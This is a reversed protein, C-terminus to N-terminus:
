PQGGTARIMASYVTTEIQAAAKAASGDAAKGAAAVANAYGTRVAAEDIESIPVCETVSVDTVNNAHTLAFGGPVFFKETEGSTHIVTVVGAKLQSIVPSHGLTVGYEGAEGPLLVKDVVKKAYIPQHPTVLNLTLATAAGTSASPADTLSIQM